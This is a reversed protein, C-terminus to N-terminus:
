NKHMYKLIPTIWLKVSDRQFNSNSEYVNFNSLLIFLKMREPSRIQLNIGSTMFFQHVLWIWMMLPRGGSLVNLLNCVKLERLVQEGCIQIM